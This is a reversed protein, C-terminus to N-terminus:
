LFREVGVFSVGTTNLFVQYHQSRVSLGRISVNYFSVSGMFIELIGGSEHYWRSCYFRFGLNPPSLSIHTPM